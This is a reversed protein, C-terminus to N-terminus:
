MGTNDAAYCAVLDALSSVCTILFVPGYFGKVIPYLWNCAMSLNACINLVMCGSFVWVVTNGLFTGFITGVLTGTVTGGGFTDTITVGGLKIIGLYGIIVYSSGM